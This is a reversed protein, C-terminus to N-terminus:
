SALEAPKPAPGELEFNLTEANGSIDAKLPSGAPSNYKVPTITKIIPRTPSDKVGKYLPEEGAVENGLVLVTKPGPPVHATYQGNTITGGATQAVGDAAVFTIVGNEIPKGNITVTGKVEFENRTEQCGTFTLCLSALALSAITKLNKM